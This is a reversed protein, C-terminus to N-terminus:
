YNNLRGPLEGPVVNVYSPETRVAARTQNCDTARKQMEDQGTRKREEWRGKRDSVEAVRILYLGWSPSLPFIKYGFNNSNKRRSGHVDSLKTCIWGTLHQSSPVVFTQHSQCGSLNVTLVTQLLIVFNTKCTFCLTSHESLIQYTQMDATLVTTTFHSFLHDGSKNGDVCVCVCVLLYSPPTGTNVGPSSCFHLLLRQHM